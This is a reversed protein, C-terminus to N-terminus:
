CSNPPFGARPAAQHQMANSGATLTSRVLWGLLFGINQAFPNSFPSTKQSVANSFHLKCSRLFVTSFYVHQLKNSCQIWSDLDAQGALYLVLGSISVMDESGGYHKSLTLFCFLCIHSVILSQLVLCLHLFRSERSVAELSSKDTM